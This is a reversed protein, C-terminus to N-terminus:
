FTHRRHKDATSGNAPGTAYAAATAPRHLKPCAHEPLLNGPGAPRPFPCLLLLLLSPSRQTGTLYMYMYVHIGKCIRQVCLLIERGEGAISIQGEGGRQGDHHLQVMKQIDEPHYYEYFVQGILDQPLYGLVGVVRLDVYTYRSDVGVRAVFENESAEMTSCPSGDGFHQLRAVAILCAGSSGEEM